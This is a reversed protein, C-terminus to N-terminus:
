SKGKRQKNHRAGRGCKGGGGFRGGVFREGLDKVNESGCDPCEEAREDVPGPTVEGCDECCHLTQMLDVNGGEVVIEKGEVLAKALKQRAKEILRTFTPRSINMKESAELHELGEYDALRIAEYEDLMLEIRKLLRRPVGAPKFHAFRPPMHIRRRRYPGRM